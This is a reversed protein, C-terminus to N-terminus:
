EKKEIDNKVVRIKVGKESKTELTKKKVLV